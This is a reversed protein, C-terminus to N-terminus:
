APESVAKQLDSLADFMVRISESQAAITAESVLQAHEFKAVQEELNAIQAELELMRSEPTEVAPAPAEPESQPEDSM